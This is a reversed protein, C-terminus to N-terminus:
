VGGRLFNLVCLSHQFLGEVHVWSLEQEAILEKLVAMLRPCLVISEGHVSLFLHTYAQILEFHQRSQLTAISFRLFQELQACDDEVSLSRIELDIASMGMGKVRELFPGFDASDAGAALALQFPSMVGLKGFNLVKSKM